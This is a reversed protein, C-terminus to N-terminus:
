WQESDQWLKVKREYLGTISQDILTIHEVKLRKDHIRGQNNGIKLEELKSNYMGFQGSMSMVKLTELIWCGKTYADLEFLADKARILKDYFGPKGKSGPICFIPYQEAMKKYLLEVLENIQVEDELELPLGKSIKYLVKHLRVPIFLERANYMESCSRLLLESGEYEIRQNMLIKARIIKVQPYDKSLYDRLVRPNKEIEKAMYIPVNVLENVRKKGKLYSIAAIYAPKISNFGGYKDTDLGKKLPFKAEKSGARYRTEDFLAGTKERKLYVAHGDHYGLVAKLYCIDDKKKRLIEGTEEDIQDNDFAALIMGHESRGSFYNSYLEKLKQRRIQDKVDSGLWPMFREVFNGMTAALLADYGHHMDNLERIKYLGYHERVASSLGAKIGVVHVDPYHARFLDMVHQVTQSTEVLQRAIFKAKDDENVMRRTLNKLKKDGILGQDHLYHWWQKQSDIISDFLLLSGSKRQNEHKLVLARNEIADDKIYSQPLIHDIETTTELNDYDLPKQSYLSKGLQILYLYQRDELRKDKQCRKLADLCEKPVSGLRDYTQEIQRLRSTTRKKQDDSLEERTNEIYISRLKYGGHTRMHETLERVIRVAVWIGRRLAPSCPLSEVEKYEIEKNHQKMNITDICEGIRYEKKHLVQMFNDNTRRMIDMITAPENQYEGHIGDLLKQSLRGWGTYRKQKMFRRQEDTIQPHNKKILEDLISRDEFVTSWRVLKELMEMNQKNVVFGNKELDYRTRLSAMFKGPEHTGTIDCEKIDAYPSNKSLWDAFAKCSVSKRRAFLEDMIRQKLGPDEILHGKIRVRNLEDLVLYEEYLLSHLPLVDEMPLYTCSNTLNSVFCMATQEKDIVDFFNWPYVKQPEGRFKLWKQFPSAPNLPGVYYPLRFTCLQLIHDGNERLSPYYKGQNEIIKKLEEAQIQNPIQGNLNIRLLPMFGNVDNIADLMPQAAKAAAETKNSALVGKVEKYFDEQKCRQLKNKSFNKPKRLHDTYAAYGYPENDDKFLKKFSEPAYTRVWTKLEALDRKHKEYREVMVNSLTKNDKHIEAFLQWRYVEVVKRFADAQEETMVSTYAEEDFEPNAFSVKETPDSEEYQLLEKLSGKNGVLLAALAKAANKSAKDKKPSLLEMIKEARVSKRLSQDQIVAMLKDLTEDDSKFGCMFSDPDNLLELLDKMSEKADLNVLQQGEMLFNGRYKIIHHMAFYVYRFDAQEKSEVLAKRIHYITPADSVYSGVSVSGDLFLAKPLRLYLKDYESDEPMLFSEDMRHFFEPDVEKMDSWVQNQLEKIRNRKRDLRRRTSRNMRREAATEAPDFIVSGYMPRKQYRLLRGNEDILAYGVSNTGIDLAISYENNM